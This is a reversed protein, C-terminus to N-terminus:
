VPMSGCRMRFGEVLSHRPKSWCNGAPVPLLAGPPGSCLWAGERTSHWPKELASIFVVLRISTKTTAAHMITHKDSSARGRKGFLNKNVRHVISPSLCGGDCSRFIDFHHYTGACCYLRVTSGQVDRLSGRPTECLSRNCALLTRRRM